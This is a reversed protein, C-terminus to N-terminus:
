AVYVVAEVVYGEGKTQPQFGTLFLYLFGRGVTHKPNVRIPCPATWCTHRRQGEDAKSTVNSRLRAKDAEIVSCLDILDLKATLQEATEWQEVFDAIRKARSLILSGPSMLEEAESGFYKFVWLIENILTERPISM